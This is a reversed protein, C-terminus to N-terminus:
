DLVLEATLAAHDSVNGVSLGGHVESHIVRLGRVYIRDLRLVPLLAPFTRASKGHRSEFVETLNFEQVLRQTAQQRWDNFDGAIILPADSPVQERIRKRLASLQERRWRALLGLHLCICHIPQAHNPVAIQCHLMGRQEMMHASVDQNHWHVIPFKSLVANGHHGDERIANKGYAFAPWEREAMYAYQTDQTHSRHRQHAGCVEQLFVIDAGLHRIFERQQHLVLRVNFSSLGKHLNFTAVRLKIRM